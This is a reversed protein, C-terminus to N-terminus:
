QLGDVAILLGVIFFGLVMLPVFNIWNEIRLLKSFGQPDLKDNEGLTGEAYKSITWSSLNYHASIRQLVKASAIGYLISLVIGFIFWIVAWFRSREDIGSVNLLAVTAGGNISLCSALVWRQWSAAQDRTHLSAEGVYEVLKTLRQPTWPNEM